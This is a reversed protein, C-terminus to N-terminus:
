QQLLLNDVGHVVLKVELQLYPSGIQECTLSDVMELSISSLQIRKPCIRKDFTFHCGHAIKFFFISKAENYLAVDSSTRYHMETFARCYSTIITM